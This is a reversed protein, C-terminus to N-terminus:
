DAPASEPEAQPSSPPVRFIINGDTDHAHSAIADFLRHIDARLIEHNHNMRQELSQMEQRYATRGQGEQQIPFVNPRQARQYMRGLEFIAKEALLAVLVMAGVIATFLAVESM